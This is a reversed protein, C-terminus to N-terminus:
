QKAPAVVFSVPRRPDSPAVARISAGASHAVRLSDHIANIESLQKAHRLAEAEAATAVATKTRELAADADADLQAQYKLDAESKGKLEAETLFKRPRKITNTADIAWLGVEQYDENTQKSVLQNYAVIQNSHAVSPDLIIVWKSEGHKRGLLISKM